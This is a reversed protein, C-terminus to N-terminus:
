PTMILYDFVKKTVAATTIVIQMEDEVNKEDKKETRNM